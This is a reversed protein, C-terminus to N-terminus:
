AVHFNLRYIISCELTVYSKRCNIACNQEEKNFIEKVLSEYLFFSSHMVWEFNNCHRDYTLYPEKCLSTCKIEM